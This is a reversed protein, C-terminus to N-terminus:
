KSLDARIQAAVEGLAETVGSVVSSVSSADQLALHVLLKGYLVGRVDALSLVRGSAAFAEIIERGDTAARELAAEPEVSGGGLGPRCVFLIDLDIPDRAGSKPTAVSMEAKVPHAAVFRLGADIVARAVSVWGDARSQHYSFVLLGDDKLVRRCEAFVGALKDSFDSADADQVEAEDRTTAAEDPWFYLRQWVHFFDALESYHVNDFFPPDTLVLDVSGSALATRSSDGRALHVAGDTLDVSTALVEAGIADSLDHVKEAKAKGATTASARLEFPREQYDIARLLRTKFLTSFAGSSKPTGWVNAEIPM